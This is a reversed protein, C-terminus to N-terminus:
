QYVPDPGALEPWDALAPQGLLPKVAGQHCTTCNVKPVDGAPGLRAEPLLAQTALIHTNNIDLVMQRGIQATAWAPTYGQPDAPARTNHCYTCNVGLSSSFHMMLNYTQYTDYISANSIGDEDRPAYGHVGVQRSDDLLFAQLADVPLATSYNSVMAPGENAPIAVNQYRASPGAWRSNPEPLVWVNAPVQNGRHCTYCTVGTEGVHAQWEQNIAWTMNIMSWAVTTAYTDAAFLDGHGVWGRMATVLREFNPVTLHGLPGALPNADAALEEGGTPPIPGGLPTRCPTSRL